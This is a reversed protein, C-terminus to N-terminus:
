KARKNDEVSRARRKQKKGKIIFSKQANKSEYYGFESPIRYMGPGLLEKQQRSLPMTERNVHYFTRCLSSKYRGLFYNGDKSIGPKLTYAGPGPLM